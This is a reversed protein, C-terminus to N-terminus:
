TTLAQLVYNSCHKVTQPLRLQKGKNQLAQSSKLPAVVVTTQSLVRQVLLSSHTSFTLVTRTNQSSAESALTSPQTKAQFWFSQLDELNKVSLVSLSASRPLLRFAIALVALPFHVRAHFAAVALSFVALPFNM